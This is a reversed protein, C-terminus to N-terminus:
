RLVVVKKSEQWNGASLRILYMGSSVDKGLNNTGSWHFIHTGVTQSIINSQYVTRGNLDYVIVSLDTQYPIHYKIATSSNVPNPFVREFAFGNQPISHTYGNVSNTEREFVCIGYSNYSVYIYDDVLTVGTTFDFGVELEMEVINEPDSADLVQFFGGTSYVVSNEVLFEDYGRGGFDNSQGLLALNTPDSIDIILLSGGDILYLRDDEIFVYGANGTTEFTNTLIPNSPDSIDYIDMDYLYRSMYLYNGRVAVAPINGGSITAMEVPNGPDSIDHIVVGVGDAAVFALDEELLIHHIIGWELDLSQELFVASPEAVNIIRLKGDHGGYYAYEDRSTAYLASSISSRSIEHPNLPDSADLIILGAYGSSVYIYEGNKHISELNDGTPISDSLVIGATEDYELIQITGSNHSYYIKGSEGIMAEFWGSQPEYKGISDLLGESSVQIVNLDRYKTAVFAKGSQISVAMPNDNLILSDLFTPNLIDAIDYTHAYGEFSWQSTQITVLAIDDSVEFDSVNRGGLFNGALEPNEVDAMNVFHIGNGDTSVVLINEKLEIDSVTGGLDCQLTSIEIPAAPNSIDYCHLLDEHGSFLILHNGEIFFESSINQVEFGTVENLHGQDDMQHIQISEGDSTSYVYSGISALHTVM